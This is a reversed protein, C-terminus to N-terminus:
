KRNSSSRSSRASALPAVVQRVTHEIAGDPVADTVPTYIVGLLDGVALGYYRAVIDSAQIKPLNSVHEGPPCLAHPTYKPSLAHRTPNCVLESEYFLEVTWEALRALLKLQASSAHERVLLIFHAVPWAFPLATESKKAATNLSALACRFYKQVGGFDCARVVVCFSGTDTTWAESAFSCAPDQLILSHDNREPLYGRDAFMERVTQEFAQAAM